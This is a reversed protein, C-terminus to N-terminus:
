LIYIHDKELHCVCCVFFMGTPIEQVSHLAQPAPFAIYIYIHICVQKARYKKLPGQLRLGNDFDVRATVM